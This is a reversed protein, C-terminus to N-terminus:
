KGSVEFLDISMDFDLNFIQPLHTAVICQLNNQKCVNKINKLFTIQWSMHFSIEPEDILVISNESSDFLFKYYITLLQKEGSSLDQLNLFSGDQTSHFAFGWARNFRMVKNFFYASEILNFFTNTKKVFDSEEKKIRELNCFFNAISFQNEKDYLPIDVDILDFKKLLNFFSASARKKRLYDSASFTKEVFNNQQFIHKVKDAVSSWQKVFEKRYEEIALTDKNKDNYLRTDEIYVVNQNRKFLEFENYMEGKLMRGMKWKSYDNKRSFYVKLCLGKTCRLQLSVNKVVDEDSEEDENLVIVNQQLTYLEESFVFELTKFPKSCFVTWKEKINGLLADIFNLLTTKGFGNPGTIFKISPESGDEFNLKYNFSQFLNEVYLAKIM